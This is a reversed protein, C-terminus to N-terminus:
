STAGTKRGDRRSTDMTTEILAAVAEDDLGLERARALWAALGERLEAIEEPAPGPLSERVFTGQGVRGECLGTAELERYARMVTNPNIALVATLERVTPMRDGPRLVGLRLAHRVQRVIQQYVPTGSRPDVHLDLPM